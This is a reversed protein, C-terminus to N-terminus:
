CSQTRLTDGGETALECFSLFDIFDYYEKTAEKIEKPDCILGIRDAYACLDNANIYLSRKSDLVCFAMRLSKENCYKTTPQTSVLFDSYSILFRSRNLDRPNDFKQCIENLQSDSYKNGDLNKLGEATIYGRNMTDMSQFIRFEIDNETQILVYCYAIARLIIRKIISALSFQDIRQILDQVSNVIPAANPEATNKPFIFKPIGGQIWPHAIAQVANPRAYPENPNLLLKIFEKCENSIGAWSYLIM